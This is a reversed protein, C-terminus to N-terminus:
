IKREWNDCCEKQAEDPYGIYQNTKGCIYVADFDEEFLYKLYSNNCNFCTKHEIARKIIEEFTVEKLKCSKPRKVYDEEKFPVNRGCGNKMYGVSCKTCNDPLKLTEFDEYCMQIELTIKPGISNKTIDTQVDM